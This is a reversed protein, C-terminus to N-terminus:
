PGGIVHVGLGSAAKAKRAAYRERDRRNRAERQAPTMAAARVAYAARRLRNYAERQEPTLPRVARHAREHANRRERAEPHAAYYAHLWCAGCLGRGAHRGYGEPLPARNSRVTPRACDACRNPAVRSM